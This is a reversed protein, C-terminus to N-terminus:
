PMVMRDFLKPRLRDGYMRKFASFFSEVLWRLTYGTLRHTLEKGLREKMLRLTRRYVFDRDDKFSKKLNPIFDLSLDTAKRWNNVTDYAADATLSVLEVGVAIMGEAMSPFVRADGPQEMTISFSVIQQSNVDLMVHQKIFGRKNLCWMHEMYIGHGSIGEGSGDMAGNVPRKGDIFNKSVHIAMMERMDAAEADKREQEELERQCTVEKQPAGYEPYIGTNVFMVPDFEEDVGMDKLLRGAREMVTHSLDGKFFRVASNQITKYCPARLGLQEFFIRCGAPCRRYPKNDSENLMLLYQILSPPYQYKRGPKGPYNLISLEALCREM